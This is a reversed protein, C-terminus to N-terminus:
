MCHSRGHRAQEDGNPLRSCPISASLAALSSSAGSLRAPVRASDAHATSFFSKDSTCATMSASPSSSSSRSSPPHSSSLSCPPGKPYPQTFTPPNPCTSPPVLPQTWRPGRTRCPSSETRLHVVHHSRRPYPLRCRSYSPPCQPEKQLRSPNRVPFGFM